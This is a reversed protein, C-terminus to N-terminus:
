PTPPAAPVAPVLEALPRYPACVELQEATGPGPVLELQGGATSIKEFSDLLPGLAPNDARQNALSQNMNTALQQGKVYEDFHWGAMSVADIRADTFWGREMTFAGTGSFNLYDAGPETQVSLAMDWGDATPRIALHQVEPGAGFALVGAMQTPDLKTARGAWLDGCAQAVVAERTAADLAVPPPGLPADELMMWAAMAIFFNPAVLVGVGSCGCCGIVGISGVVVAGLLWTGCGSRREAM